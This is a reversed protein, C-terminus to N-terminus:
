LEGTRASKSQLDTYRNSANSSSVLMKDAGPSVTGVSIGVFESSVLVGWQVDAPHGLRFFGPLVPGKEYRELDRSRDLVLIPAWSLVRVEVVQTM